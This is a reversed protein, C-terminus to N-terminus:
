PTREKNTWSIRLARHGENTGPLGGFRPEGQVLGLAERADTLWLIEGERLQRLRGLPVEVIDLIVEVDLELQTVAQQLPWCQAAPRREQPEGGAPDRVQDVAEQPFCFALNVPQQAGVIVDAVIGVVLSEARDGRVTSGSSDASTVQIKLPRKPNWLSGVETLAGNLWHGTVRMDLATLERQGPPGQREGGGGGMRSEVLLGVLARGLVMLGKGPLGAVELIFAAGPVDEDMAADVFSGMQAVEMWSQGLTCPQGLADSLRRELASLIAAFAFSLRQDRRPPALRLEGFRYPPPPGNM